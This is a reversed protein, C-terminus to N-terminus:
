LRLASAGGGTRNAAGSVDEGVSAAPRAAATDGREADDRPQGEGDWGWRRAQVHRPRHARRSSRADLWCSADPNMRHSRRCGSEGWPGVVLAPGALTSHRPMAFVASTGIQDCSSEDTRWYGNWGNSLPDGRVPLLAVRPQYTQTYGFPLEVAFTASLEAPELTDEMLAADEAVDAFNPNLPMALASPCLQFLPNAPTFEADVLVEPRDGRTNHTLQQHTIRAATWAGDISTFDCAFSTLRWDVQTGGQDTFFHYPYIPRSGTELQAYEHPLEVVSVNRVLRQEANFTGRETDDALRVYQLVWAQWTSDFAGAASALTV